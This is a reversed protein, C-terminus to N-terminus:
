QPVPIAAIATLVSTSEGVAIVSDEAPAGNNDDIVDVEAGTSFNSTFFIRYGKSPLNNKDLPPIVVATPSSTGSSGQPNPLYFPSGKIEAPTNPTNDIVAFQDTGKLAVYVRAGDPTIALAVPQSVKGTSISAIFSPSDGTTLVAVNDSGSCAFYVRSGDPTITVGQPSTCNVGTPFFFPSGAIQANTSTDIVAFQNTGALTVYVQKGGPTVAMGIPQSNAPLPISAIGTTNDTSIVAIAPSSPGGGDCAFYIENGPYPIGVVATPSACPTNSPFSFPSGTIAQNTITDIVAFQNSTTLAVYLYHGDPTVAIGNPASSLGPLPTSLATGSTSPNSGPTGTNIFHVLGQGVDAVYAYPNFVNVVYNTPPNPTLAGGAPTSANGADMACVQFTFDSDQASASSPGASASLQGTTTGLAMPTPLTGTPALNGTCAGQTSGPPVWTYGTTLGGTAALTQTYPYDLLANALRTTTIKLAPQILLSGKFTQSNSPTSANPNDSATIQPSFSGFGSVSNASCTYTDVPMGGTVCNFGQPLTNAGSFNYPPGLGDSATFTLPECPDTGGAGCNSGVGYSRGNVGDPYSAPTATISIEPNITLTAASSSASGAPTSADGTDSATITLSPSGSGTVGSSSCQYTGTLGSSSTLSCNFGRPFGSMTPTTSYGGLGGTVTYQIPQCSGGSCGTGSGYARGEVAPALPSPTPGSINLTPNITLTATGSTSSGAPTSTNAIDSATISITALGSGSLGSGNLCSYSGSLSGSSKFSCTFGSPFGNLTPTTSYSGTGNQITFTIPQCSSTGSAGCNNGTGYPRGSVAAALSGPGSVSLAPNITLTATGSSASAAPTSTNATDSATISINASGSASVGAANLCSYSGSLGSGSNLSCSFGSPFNNLTPSFSYGGLGGSISYSIPQCLDTGNTGCNSGYGYPRGSVAAALSGPGSINLAPNIILTAPPSSASGSPTSANGTDSATLSINSSGSGSVVSVSLCSYSGSLSGSSNFPCSFGSPFNNLAAPQYSGLGGSITYTIPQCPSNAGAGCNNGFGYSRGSVAAVPPTAPGTLELPPEITLTKNLVYGTNSQQASPTTASATDNLTFSFSYPGPLASVTGSGTTSCTIATSSNSCVIGSPVGNPLLPLPNAPPLTYVYPPNGGSADYILPKLGHSPDGYARGQVGPPPPDVSSSDPTLALPKNVTITNAFSLSGAPAEASGSDSVTFQFGYPGPEATLVGTGSSCTVQVPLLPPQQQPPLPATCAIPTPVGGNPTQRGPSLPTAVTPPLSFTYPPVGGTITYTLPTFGAAANGYSRNQVAPPPQNGASNPTITLQPNVVLTRTQTATTGSSVGDPTTANATDDVTVPVPGYPVSSPTATIQSASCAYTNLASGTGQTCAFGQPFAAAPTPSTGPTSFDYGGLGGTATYLIPSFPQIGYGRNQIAVPLPDALNVALALPADVRISHSTHGNVDTSTSGGPTASNGPDSVTVTFSTSGPSGGVPQGNSSCTVTATPAPPQPNPTPAACTVGAPLTGGVTISLGTTTSLGNTATVVLSSRAPAGYTRNEVADPAQGPQGAPSDFNLSFALPPNVVWTLTKTVTNQPVVIQAPSAPDTIPSDTASITVSYTGSATVPLTSTLLCRSRNGPDVLVSLGPNVPAVALSCNTLPGNGAEGSQGSNSSPVVAPLSTQAPQSLPAVGFTRGAVGDALSAQTIAFENRVTLTNTFTETGPPVVPFPQNTAYLPSDTVRLSFTYIGPLLNGAPAKMTVLMNVGTTDPACTAAGGAATFAAPLGSISCATIPGNGAQSSGMQSIGHNNVLDTTVLFTRTYSRGMIGDPMSYPHVTFPSRITLSYLRRDTRQPTSSDGAQLTFTFQGAQTIPEGNSSLICESGRPSPAAFGPPLSGSIIICSTIVGSGGSTNITAVYSLGEVGDVLQPTTISLFGPGGPQTASPLETTGMGCSMMGVAASLLLSITAWQWFTLGGLLSQRRTVPVPPGSGEM